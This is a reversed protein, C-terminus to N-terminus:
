TLSKTSGSIVLDSARWFVADVDATYGDVILIDLLSLKKYNHMATRRTSIYAIHKWM